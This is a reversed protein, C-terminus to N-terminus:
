SAPHFPIPKGCSACRIGELTSSVIPFAHIREENEPWVVKVADTPASFAGDRYEVGNQSGAFWILNKRNRDDIELFGSASTNVIYRSYTRYSPDNFVSNLDSSGAPATHKIFKELQYETDVLDAPSAPYVLSNSIACRHCLYKAM